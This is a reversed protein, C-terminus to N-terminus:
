RAKSPLKADPSRGYVPVLDPLRDRPGDAIAASQLAAGLLRGLGVASAGPREHLPLAPDLLEACNSVVFDAGAMAASADGPKLARPEAEPDIVDGHSVPRLYVEGRRADIAVYGNGRPIEDDVCAALSCVGILPVELARAVGKATAMGVRVGVFSGPGVGVCVGDLDRDPCVAELADPLEEAHRRAGELAREGMIQGDQWLAIVARPASTDILLWRSM